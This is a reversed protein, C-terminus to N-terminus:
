EQSQSYTGAYQVDMEALLEVELRQLGFMVKLVFGNSNEKVTGSATFVQADAQTLGIFLLLALLFKVFYFKKM